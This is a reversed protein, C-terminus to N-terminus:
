DEKDLIQGQSAVLDRYFWASDKPLREGMSPDIAVLGFRKTYGHHWEFNDLLSWAFYGRLKLGQAILDRCVLLHERLYQIRAEDKIHNAIAPPDDFAVGNETIFIPLDGLQKQAWGLARTLGDPDIYWGMATQPEGAAPPVLRFGGFAAPDAKVRAPAYYNIGLFDLSPRTDFPEAQFDTGFIESFADPFRGHLLPSLVTENIYAHRRAAALRDPESDTAPNQPELNLAIGIQHRGLERYAAVAAQHAKIQQALVRPVLEPRQLGPALDGSRYGGDAVIGPENLTLWWPVRDDLAEFMLAAYDAFWKHSDAHPWGGLEELALPLDWHYLCAMPRIGQELLTDVLRQYHDLGAQNLKGKGQPLIRGWAISFRYAGLGLRAMLDIDEQYRRYHDCAIDPRNGNAIRGPERAFAHWISPGAGDALPSGEVQCASTAAGWIFDQPFLNNAM